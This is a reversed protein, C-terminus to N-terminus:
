VLLIHVDSIEKRIRGCFNSRNCNMTTRHHIGFKTVMKKAVSVVESEINESIWQKFIYKAEIASISDDFNIGKCKMMSIVEKKRVKSVGSFKAPSM